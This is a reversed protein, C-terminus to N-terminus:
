DCASVVCTLRDATPDSGCAGAPAPLVRGRFLHELLVIADTLDVRGSDDADSADLCAPRTPDRFLVVLVTIADTITMRGDGDADGRRFTTGPPTVYTFSMTSESPAEGHITNVVRVAVTGSGPPTVVRLLVDSGLFREVVPAPTDGFLVEVGDLFDSGSILVEEGGPSSGSSPQLMLPRPRAPEVQVLSHATLRLGDHEVAVEPSGVVRRDFPLTVRMRKPSFYESLPSPVGGFFVRADPELNRGKLSVVTGPRLVVRTPDVGVPQPVSLRRSGFVLQQLVPGRNRAFEIIDDITGPWRSADGGTAGAEEEIDGAVIGVQERVLEVVHDAFLVGALHAELRDLFYRQYDRNTFLAGFIRGMKGAGFLAEFTDASWGTPRRGLGVEADWVLFQWPMEHGRPAAAFWNTAGWDHNQAWVNVIVYDTFNEVDVRHLAEEFLRDDGLDSTRLFELLDSWALANGDIPATSANLVDWDDDDTEDFYSAFFGADIRETVNYLGRYETNVFLNYWTGHAILHGMDRHLNRIVQDRILSAEPGSADVFNARLVLRDFRRVETDDFLPFDLKADGYESRFYTRYSKKKEMDGTRSGGGHLRLGMSADAVRRGETDFIEMHGPREFQRGRGLSLHVSTFDAPAMSVTMVPVDLHDVDILYTHTAVASVRDRELFAAARLVSTREFVLPERYVPSAFTPASGDTAYRIVVGAPFGDARVTVVQPVTSEGAEPTVEVRDPIPEESGVTDNPEGPTPRLLYRWPGVGDPARGWAHDETQMGFTVADVLGGDPATLEVREGSRSLRFNAHLEDGSLRNKGSCWILLHERAGLTVAPLVWKFAIHPDDTLGYGELSLEAPGSNILEVWDGRDGDVDALGFRNAAVLENLRVEAHLRSLGALALTVALLSRTARHLSLLRM